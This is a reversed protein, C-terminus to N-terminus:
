SQAKPRSKPVRLFELNIGARESMRNYQLAIVSFGSTVLIFSEAAHEDDLWNWDWNAQGSIVFRIGKEM